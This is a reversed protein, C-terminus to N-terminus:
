NKIVLKSTFLMNKELSKFQVFYIGDSLQQNVEMMNSNINQSFIEKGSIDSISMIGDLEKIEKSIEIFFRGNNPNPFIKLIGNKQHNFIGTTQGNCLVDYLFLTTKNLIFNLTNTLEYEDVPHGLTPIPYFEANMGLDKMKIALRKDGYFYNLHCAVTIFCGVDFPVTLDIENHFGVYAIDRNDNIYDVNDMAGSCSVVARIGGSTYGENGSNGELGGLAACNKKYDYSMEATDNIFVTNLMTIAGASSGYIIINNTDIGFTNGNEAVDKKIYRIAARLDHSARIMAKYWNEKLAFNVFPSIVVIQEVRYEINATVYGKQTFYQAKLDMRQDLRDGSTFSGGHVFIILPRKQLTDNEPTYVDMLLTTLQNNSDYNSGYVLDKYTKFGFISDLYRSGCDAGNLNSFSVSLILLFLHKM